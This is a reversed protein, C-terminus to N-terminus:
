LSYKTRCDKLVNCGTASYITSIYHLTYLTCFSFHFLGVRGSTGWADMLGCILGVHDLDVTKGTLSAM